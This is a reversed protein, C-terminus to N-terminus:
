RMELQAHTGLDHPEEFCGPPYGADAVAGGVPM